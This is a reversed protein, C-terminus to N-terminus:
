LSHSIVGLVCGDSVCAIVNPFLCAKNVYNGLCLYGMDIKYVKLFGALIIV